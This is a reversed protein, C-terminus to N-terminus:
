IKYYLQFNMNEPAMGEPVIPKETFGGLTYTATLVIRDGATSM